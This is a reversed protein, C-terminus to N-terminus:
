LSKLYKILESLGKGITPGGVNMFRETTLYFDVAQNPTFIRVQYDSLRKYDYGLNAIAKLNDNIIEQKSLNSTNTHHFNFESKTANIVINPAHPLNIQKNEVEFTIEDTPDFPPEEDSTKESTSKTESKNDKMQEAITRFPPRTDYDSTKKESNYESKFSLIRDEITKCLRKQIREIEELLRGQKWEDNDVFFNVQETIMKFEYDLSWKLNSKLKEFDM